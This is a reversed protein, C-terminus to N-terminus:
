ELAIAQRVLDPLSEAMMKEMVRTRHIDVTRPSIGLHRGVEKNSMGDVVLAMVQRERETLLAYRVRLGAVRDAGLAQRAGAAATEIATLLVHNPFPKEIFDVAGNKVAQVAMPIDGHGTIFITPVQIGRELLGRQLDLGSMGPMRVDSVLCGDMGPHAFALFARPGDFSQVRYGEGALLASLSDRVAADDDVVWVDFPNM